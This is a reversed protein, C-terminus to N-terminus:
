AKPRYPACNDKWQLQTFHAENTITMRGTITGLPVVDAFVKAEVTAICTEGSCDESVYRYQATCAPDRRNKILGSASGARVFAPDYGNVQLTLQKPKGCTYQAALMDGLYCRDNKLSADGNFRANTKTGPECGPDGVSIRIEDCLVTELSGQPALCTAPFVATARASLTERIEGAPKLADTGFLCRETYDTSGPTGVLPTRCVFSTTKPATTACLFYKATVRGIEVPGVRCTFDDFWGGARCTEETDIPKGPVTIPRCGTTGNEPLPKLNQIVEDRGALIHDPVPPRDPFGQDLVQIARCTTDTKGRCAIVDNMAPGRLEGFGNQYVGTQHELGETSANGVAGLVPTPDAKVDSLIGNIDPLPTEWAAHVADSAPTAISGFPFTLLGVLAAFAPAVAPRGRPTTLLSKTMTISLAPSRM